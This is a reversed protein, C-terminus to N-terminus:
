ASKKKILVQDQKLKQKEKCDEANGLRSNENLSAAGTNEVEMRREDRQKETVIAGPPQFLVGWVEKFSKAYKLDKFIDVWEHFCLYVPNYSNIPKTLGYKPKAKEEQFTGLMRDWIIFTSGYNKDIYEANVGHHARHHSPTVFIYEIIWPLKGVLETHVFFQYIVALQHCILFMVPDFGLLPLPLFFVIKIHQTWGTRFATSFNLKESSHHTVHTAWWFRQEHAIRHAWYRCFDVGIFCLVYGWWTHPVSLPTLKYLSIVIALNGMKLVAGILANVVGIGTSGWFDRKEYYYKKKYIGWAWEFGVFAFFLPILYPIFEPLGHEQFYELSLLEKDM